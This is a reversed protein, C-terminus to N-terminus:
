VNELNTALSRQGDQYKALIFFITLSHDLKVQCSCYFINLSSSLGFEIVINLNSNSENTLSLELEFEILIVLLFSFSLLSFM